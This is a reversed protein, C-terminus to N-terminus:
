LNQLEGRAYPAWDANGTDVAQQFAARAGDRDGQKRLMVGLFVMANAARDPNGARIARQYSSRAGDRDGQKELVRALAVMAAPAWEAHRSNIAQEFAAQAGQYDRQSLMLLYGLEVRAEPAVDRQGSDIARQFAARAGEVDGLDGRLMRGLDILAHVDGADIARQYAARAGEVDDQSRLLDGLDVMARTNGAVIQQRYFDALAHGVAAELDPDRALAEQVVDELEAPFTADEVRTILNALAGPPPGGAGFVQRMLRQGLAVAADATDVDLVPGASLVAQGYTRAATAMYIAAYESVSL